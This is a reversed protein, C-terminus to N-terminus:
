YEFIKDYKPILSMDWNKITEQWFEDISSNLLATDPNQGLYKVARFLYSIHNSVAKAGSRKSLKIGSENVLIPIHSYKPVPLNLAQIMLKQKLSSDILDYARIVHTIEDLYDDIIASLHYSMVHDSRRIIFDGFADLDQNYYGQITDDISASAAKCNFRIALNQKNMKIKKNRCAGSYIGHHNIQYIKKRSCTCGYCKNKKILYNLAEQYQLLNSQHRIEGDWQFGLSALTDIISQESGTCIRAKDIDDIRVFWLGNHHKADVYSAVATLLSGMHLHGSPSPAFRGRYKM